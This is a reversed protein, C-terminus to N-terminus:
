ARHGSSAQDSSDQQWHDLFRRATDGQRAEATVAPGVRFVTVSTICAAPIVMGHGVMGSDSGNMVLIAHDLTMDLVVGVTRYTTRDRLAERYKEADAWGLDVHESDIWEVEVVSGLPINQINAVETRESM